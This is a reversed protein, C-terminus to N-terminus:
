WGWWMVFFLVWPAAAIAVVWPTIQMGPPQCLEDIERVCEILSPCSGAIHPHAEHRYRWGTPTTTLRFNRYLPDM